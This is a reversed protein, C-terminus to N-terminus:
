NQHRFVWEGKIWQVAKWRFWPYMDAAVKFKVLADDKWFGKVEHIQFEHDFVVLFDPRYYTKPALRFNLADFRYNIIVGARKMHELQDAYRAETKNMKPKPIIPIM